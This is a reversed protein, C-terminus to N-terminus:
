RTKILVFRIAKAEILSPGTGGDKSDVWVKLIDGNSDMGMVGFSARKNAKHVAGACIISVSAKHVLISDIGQISIYPSTSNRSYMEQNTIRFEWWDDLVRGLIKDSSILKDNRFGTEIAESDAVTNSEEILETPTGRTADLVQPCKEVNMSYTRTADIDNFGEQPLETMARSTILSYNGTREESNGIKNIQDQSSSGESLNTELMEKDKNLKSAPKTKEHSIKKGMNAKLWSDYQPKKSQDLRTSGHIRTKESHGIIRCQYCFDPLREYTFNAWRREGELRVM